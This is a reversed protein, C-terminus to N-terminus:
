DIISVSVFVYCDGKGESLRMPALMMRWVGFAVVVCYIWTELSGWRSPRPTRCLKPRNSTTKHTIRSEPVQITLSAIGAPWFADNEQTDKPGRKTAMSVNEDSLLPLNIEQGPTASEQRAIEDRTPRMEVQVDVATDDSM